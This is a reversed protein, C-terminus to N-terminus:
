KAKLTQPWNVLVTLQTSAGPPQLMLFRGDRAVDYQAYNPSALYNGEFLTSRSIVRFTPTREIRTEPQSLIPHGPAWYLQPNFAVVTDVIREHEDPHIRHFVTRNLRRRPPDTDIGSLAGVWEEAELLSAVLTGLEGGVGSVFVRRGAM